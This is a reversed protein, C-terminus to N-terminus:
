PTPGSKKKARRYASELIETTLPHPKASNSKDNLSFTESLRPFRKRRGGKGQRGPPLTWEKPVDKKLARLKEWVADRIFKSRDAYGMEELHKDIFDRFAEKM